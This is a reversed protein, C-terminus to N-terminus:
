GTDCNAQSAGDVLVHPWRTRRGENHTRHMTLLSMETQLPPTLLGCCAISESRSYWTSHLNLEPIGNLFCIAASSPTLGLVTLVYRLRIRSLSLSFVLASIM